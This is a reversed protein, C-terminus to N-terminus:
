NFSQDNNDKEQSQLTVILREFLNFLVNIKEDIIIIKQDITNLYNETASIINILNEENINYQINNESEFFGINKLKNKLEQRIEDEKRSVKCYNEFGIFMNDNYEYNAAICIKCSNNNCKACPQDGFMNEISYEKYLSIIDNNIGNYIDGLKQNKNYFYFRHCPYIEGEPSIACLTKGASCPAEPKNSRCNALTSYSFHYADLNNNKQCEIFIEDAIKRLNKEFHYITEEDWSDEHLPMFWVTVIGLSKLYKYSEYLMKANNAAIVGHAILYKKPINLEEFCKLYEKVTKEVLQSSGKGEKNIRCKDQVLPHGDISLQINVEQLTSFWKKIFNYVDSNFITCNTILQFSPKINFNAAQEVTYDFIFNIVKMNLTPEGGFFTIDIKDGNNKIIENILFDIANKAVETTMYIPTYNKNKEYCYTCRLNCDETVIMMASHFNNNM